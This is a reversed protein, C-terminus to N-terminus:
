HRLQSLYQIGTEPHQIIFSLEMTLDLIWFWTDLFKVKFAIVIESGTLPCM